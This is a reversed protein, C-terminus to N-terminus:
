KLVGMNYLTTLKHEWYPHLNENDYVDNKISEINILNNTKIYELLSTIRDIVIKYTSNFHEEDKAIYRCEDIVFLLSYLKRIDIEDAHCCYYNCFLCGESQKCDININNLNKSIVKEEATLTHKKKKICRGINIETSEINNKFINKNMQNFFDNLQEASSKESEGTYSSLITPISVQAMQAAQVVGHNKLNYNSKNVRFNRSTLSPINKDIKKFFRNFNSSQSYSIQYSLIEKNKYEFFLREHEIGRLLYKRLKIYKKFDKIFERRIPFEVSKNNARYKINKLLYNNKEIEYEKNYDLTSATSDNMGTVTLFLMFYAKVAINVLYLRSESEPNINNIHFFNVCENRKRYMSSNHTAYLKELEQVERIIGKKTDFLKFKENDKVSLICFKKYPLLWYDDNVLRVKHPYKIKKHIFDFIQNFLSHYFTFSYSISNIDSKIIKNELTNQSKFITINRSIENTNINSLISLFSLSNKQIYSASKQSYRGIRIQQKLYLTFYEFIKVTDKKRLNILNYQNEDCWTIFFKLRSIHNKKTIDRIGKNDLEILYEILKNAILKREEIYTNKIVYLKRSIKKNKLFLLDAIYIKKEQINICLNKLNINENHIYLEKVTKFDLILTRHFVYKDM